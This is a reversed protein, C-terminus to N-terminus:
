ESDEAGPFDRLTEGELVKIQQQADELVARCHKLLEAGRRYAALSAELSLQGGEMSAVIGELETMAAEFSPTQPSDQAGSKAM